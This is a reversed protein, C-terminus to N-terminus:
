AMEEKRGILKTLIVETGKETLVEVKDMLAQMMFLGLGGATIESLDKNHHSANKNLAQEYKFSTGNDKIRISIGEEELEFRIDVVGQQQNTYAHLVVNTCAETVAVKMDEIQEYYFGAKQAIGFLTVRVIDIYEAKAPITLHIFQSM